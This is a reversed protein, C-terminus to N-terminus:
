NRALVGDRERYHQLQVNFADAAALAQDVLQDYQMDGLLRNRCALYGEITRVYDEVAEKASRMSDATASHGDPIAPMSDPVVPCGAQANLAFAFTLVAVSHKM